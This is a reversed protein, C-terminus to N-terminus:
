RADHIRTKGLLRLYREQNRLYKTMCVDIEMKIRKGVNKQM